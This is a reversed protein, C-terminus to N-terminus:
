QAAGQRCACMGAYHDDASATCDVGPARYHARTQAWECDDYHDAAIRTWAEDDDHDPVEAATDADILAMCYACNEREDKGGHEECEAGLPCHGGNYVAGACAGCLVAVGHASLYEVAADAGGCHECISTETTM